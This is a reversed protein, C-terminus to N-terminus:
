FYLVFSAGLALSHLRIERTQGVTSTGDMSNVTMSTVTMSPVALYRGFLDFFAWGASGYPALRVGFAVLYGTQAASGNIGIGALYYHFGASDNPTIQDDHSLNQGMSFSYRAFGLGIYPKLFDISKLPINYLLSAGALKFTLGENNSAKAADLVLRFSSSIDLTLSYWVLPDLTLNPPVHRIPYGGGQFAEETLTVLENIGSLDPQYTSVGISAGLRPYSVLAVPPTGNWFPLLDSSRQAAQLTSKSGADIDRWTVPPGGLIQLKAPDSGWVYKGDVIEQFHNIKEAMSLLTVLSYKVTMKWHNGGKDGVDIRAYFTSDASNEVIVAREFGEVQPFLHFKEREAADIEPGVRESLIVIVMPEQCRVVDTPGCLVVLALCAISTEKIM